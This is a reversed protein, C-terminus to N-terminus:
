DLRIYLERWASDYYGRYLRPNPLFFGSLASYVMLLVAKIQDIMELVCKIFLLIKVM